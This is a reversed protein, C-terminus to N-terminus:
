SKKRFKRFFNTLKESVYQKGADVMESFTMWQLVDKKDDILHYKAKSLANWPVATPNFLGTKPDTWWGVRQKIVEHAVAHWFSYTVYCHFTDMDKMHNFIQELIGKRRRKSDHSYYKYLLNLIITADHISQLPEPVEEKQKIVAKLINKCEKLKTKELNTWFDELLLIAQSIQEKENNNASLLGAIENILEDIEIEPNWLYRALAYDNMFRAKPITRYGFAGKLKSGFYDNSDSIREKLLKLFPRPFVSQNEVGAEADIFFIFDLIEYGQDAAMHLTKRNVDAIGIDKPLKSFLRKRLGKIEPTEFNEKFNAFWTVFYLHEPEATKRMLELYEVILDVVNARCAECNCGGGEFAFLSNCPVYKFRDLTYTLIKEGIERGRQSCYSIGQYGWITARIEPYKIWLDPHIQNYVVLLVIELGIDAAYQFIQDTLDYRWANKKLEAFEPHYVMYMGILYEVHTYNFSRIRNLYEKWESFSWTDTSLKELRFPFNLVIGRTEYRPTQFDHWNLSFPDRIQSARLKMNLYYIGNALGRDGVSIILIEETEKKDEKTETLILFDDIKKPTDTPDLAIDQIKKSNNDLTLFNIGKTSNSGPDGIWNSLVKVAQEVQKSKNENYSIQYSMKYEYGYSNMVVM